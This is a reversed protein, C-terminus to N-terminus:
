LDEDKDGEKMIAVWGNHNVYCKNTAPCSHCDQNYKDSINCLLLGLANVDNKEVCEKIKEFYTM